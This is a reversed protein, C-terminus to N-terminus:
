ETQMAQRELINILKHQGELPSALKPSLSNIKMSSPLVILIYNKELKNQSRPTIGQNEKYMDINLIVTGNREVQLFVKSQRESKRM